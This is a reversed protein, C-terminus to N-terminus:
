CFKLSGYCNSVVEQNVLKLNQLTLKAPNNATYPGIDINMTKIVPSNALAGLGDALTLNIPNDTLQKTILSAVQPLVPSIDVADAGKLYGLQVPEAFSMWWGKQAVDTQTMQSLTKGTTDNNDVYSGPWLLAMQQLSLYGGTGQLPINHFMSLAQQFTVNLNLNTLSSGTGMIFKANCASAVLISICNEKAHNSQDRLNLLLQDSAWQNCYASDGTCNTPKALPINPLTLMINKAVATTLRNGNVQFGPLTFGVGTLSPITIGTTQGDNGASLSPNQANPYSQVWRNFGLGGLIQVFINGGISQDQVMGFKGAQTNVEGKTQAIRMFGSLTQIGDISSPISANTLGASLLGNIKEASFRLGVVERTSAQEPNKVAFEMFPNTMEASSSPRSDTYVPNGNADNSTPLGSLSLNKIDIDCAGAGNTGGCGLQLNKINANLEMTAELGLKYFGINSGNSYKTMLNNTDSPALYSLSMLAQGTTNSLQEDTMSKLTAAFSSSMSLSSLALLAVNLYKLQLM